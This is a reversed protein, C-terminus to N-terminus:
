FRGFAYLPNAADFDADTLGPNLEVRDYVYEEILEATAGPKAPWDYAEYRVPIGLEADIFLRVKHTYYEPKKVPHVAEILLCPRSGLRMRPNFALITDGAKLEATWRELVTDILHDIGASTIPHRCGEMARAGTPDLRM